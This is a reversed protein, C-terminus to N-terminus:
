RQGWSSWGRVYSVRSPPCLKCFLTVDKTDSIGPSIRSAPQADELYSVQALGGPSVAGLGSSLSRLTWGWVGAWLPWLPLTPRPGRQARWVTLNIVWFNRCVYINPGTPAATEGASVPLLPSLLSSPLLFSYPAQTFHLHFVCVGELAWFGRSTFLQGRATTHVVPKEWQRPSPSSSSRAKVPCHSAPQPLSTCPISFPFSFGGTGQGQGTGGMVDGGDSM